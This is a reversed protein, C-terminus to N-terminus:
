MMKMNLQARVRVGRHQTRHLDIDMCKIYGSMGLIVIVLNDEILDEDQVQGSKNSILTLRPSGMQKKVQEFEEKMLAIRVSRDNLIRYLEAIQVALAKVEQDLM